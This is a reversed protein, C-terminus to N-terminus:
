EEKFKFGSVEYTIKRELEGEATKKEYERSQIRGSVSIREGIDLEAAKVANAGWFIVPIYDSKGYNRNVALLLDTIKKGFPTSRHVPKKCIYGDLMVDNVYNEFPLINKCFVTVVLKSRRGQALDAVKLYYNYSRLQGDIRIFSGKHLNNEVVIKESLTIPIIDSSSSLRKVEITSSFFKEDFVTHSLIIDSNIKGAIDIRNTLIEMTNQPLEAREKIQEM